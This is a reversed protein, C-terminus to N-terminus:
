VIISAPEALHVTGDAAAVIEQAADIAGVVKEGGVVTAGDGVLVHMTPNIEHVERGAWRVELTMTVQKDKTKSARLSATADRSLKLQAGSPAKALLDGQEVFEGSGAVLEMGNAVLYAYRVEDDDADRLLLIGGEDGIPLLEIVGEEEARIELDADLEA